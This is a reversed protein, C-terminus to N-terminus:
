LWSRVESAKRAGSASPQLRSGGWISQTRARGKTDLWLRWRWFFHPDTRCLERLVFHVGFGIFFGVPTQIFVITILLTGIINALYGEWPVGYKMAPRTM